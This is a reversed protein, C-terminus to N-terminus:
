IKMSYYSLTGGQMFGELFSCFICMKGALILIQDAM